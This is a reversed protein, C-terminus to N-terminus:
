SSPKAELNDPLDSIIERLLDASRSAIAWYEKDEEPLALLAELDTLADAYRGCEQSLM